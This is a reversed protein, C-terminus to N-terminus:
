NYSCNPRAAPPYEQTEEQEACVNRSFTLCLLAFAAMWLWTFRTLNHGFIGFFLLLILSIQCATAMGALLRLM